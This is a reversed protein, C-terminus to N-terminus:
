INKEFWGTHEECHIYGNHWGFKDYHNETVERVLVRSFGDEHAMREAYSLLLSGFGNRRFGDLVQIHEVYLDNNKITCFLNGYMNGYGDHMVFCYEPCANYRCVTEEFDYGM